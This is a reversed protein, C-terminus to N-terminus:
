VPAKRARRWLLGILFVYVVTGAYAPLNWLLTASPRPASNHGLFGVVGAALLALMGASVLLFGIVMSARIAVRRGEVETKLRLKFISILAVIAAVLNIILLCVLVVFLARSQVERNKLTVRLPPRVGWAKLTDGAYQVLYYDEANRSVDKLTNEAGPSLGSGTEAQKGLDIIIRRRFSVSLEASSAYEIVLEDIHEPGYLDVIATHIDGDDPHRALAAILQSERSVRDRYSRSLLGAALGRLEPSSGALSVRAAVDAVRDPVEKGRYQERLAYGARIRSAEDDASEFGILADMLTGAQLEVFLMAYVKERETGRRHREAVQVLEAIQEDSLEGREFVPRLAELGKDPEYSGTLAIWADIVHDPYPPEHFAGLVVAARDKLTEHQRLGSSRAWLDHTPTTIEATLSKSLSDRLPGDIDQGTLLELADMRVTMYPDTMAKEVLIELVNAPLARDGSLRALGAIASSRTHQHDNSELAHLISEMATAYHEDGTRTVALVEIAASRNLMAIHDLALVLASFAPEPLGRSVHVEALTEAIAKAPSYQQTLEGSLGEALNVMSQESYGREGALTPLTRMIYHYGYREESMLEAILRDTLEVSLPGEAIRAQIQDLIVDKERAERATELGRILSEDSEAAPLAPCCLALLCLLIWSIGPRPARIM